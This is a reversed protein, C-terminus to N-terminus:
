QQGQEITGEVVGVAGDVITAYATQFNTGSFGTTPPVAIADVFKYPNWDPGALTVNRQWGAPGAAATAGPIAVVEGVAAIRFWQVIPLQGRVPAAVGAPPAALNPWSSLMIWQNVKVNLWDPSAAQTSSISLLCDGGGIGANSLVSGAAAPLPASLFDCYCMREPPIDSTTLPILQLDRKHVVVVWIHWQEGGSTRWLAIDPDGTTPWGAEAIDDIVGDGNDDVGADGWSGPAGAGNVGPNWPKQENDIVAFWSYDGQSTARRWPDTTPPPVVFPRLTPDDPREFLLDDSSQFIKSAQAFSMPAAFGAIGVM